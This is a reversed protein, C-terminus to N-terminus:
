LSHRSSMLENFSASSIGVRNIPINSQKSSDEYNAESALFKENYEISYLSALNNCTVGDDATMARVERGWSNTMIITSLGRYARLQMLGKVSLISSNTAGADIVLVCVQSSLLTDYKKRADSIGNEADLRLLHLEYASTYPAVTFGNEYARFLYSYVFNEDYARKGLNFMISFSTHVGASIDYIMSQLKDMVTKVSAETMFKKSADPIVTSIEFDGYGVFSKPFNLVEHITKDVGKINLSNRVTNKRKEACFECKVRKHRYPDVYMGDICKNPCDEFSLISDSNSEVSSEITSFIKSDM